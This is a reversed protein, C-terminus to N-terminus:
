SLPLMELLKKGPESPISPLSPPPCGNGAACCGRAEAPASAREQAPLFLPGEGDDSLWADEWGAVSGVRGAGCLESM